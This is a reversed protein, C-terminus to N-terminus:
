QHFFISRTSCIDFFSIHWSLTITRPINMRKQAILTIMTDFTQKIAVVFLAFHILHFTELLGRLKHAVFTNLPSQVPYKTCSIKYPTFFNAFPTQFCTIMFARKQSQPPPFNVEKNVVHTTSCRIM